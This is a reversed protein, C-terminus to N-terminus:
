CVLILKMLLFEGNNLRTYAITRRLYFNLMSDFLPTKVLYFRSFPQLKEAELFKKEEMASVVGYLKEMCSIFAGRVEEGYVATQLQEVEQSIDITAM